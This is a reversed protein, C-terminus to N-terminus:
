SLSVNTRDMNFYLLIRIIDQKIMLEAINPCHNALRGIALAANQQIAQSSDTLLNRLLVIVGQQILQQAYEPKGAFEAMSAAFANRQIRYQDFVPL